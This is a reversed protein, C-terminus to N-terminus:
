KDRNLLKSKEIQYEDETIAGKDKLDSWKLLEDAVSSFVRDNSQATQTNKREKNLFSTDGKIFRAAWYVCLIIGLVVYIYFLSPSELAFVLILFLPYLVSLTIAIKDKKNM